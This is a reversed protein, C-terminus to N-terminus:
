LGSATTCYAMNCGPAYPLRWLLFDTCRVVGLPVHYACMLADEGSQTPTAQDFCATM